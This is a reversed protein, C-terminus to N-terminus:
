MRTQYSELACTIKGPCYGGTGTRQETDGTIGHITYYETNESPTLYTAILNMRWDDVSSM